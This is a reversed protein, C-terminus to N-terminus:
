VGLFKKLAEIVIPYAQTAGFTVGGEIVKVSLAGLWKKINEGFAKQVGNKSDQKVANQLSSIEQEDINLENLQKALAKFDGQNIKINFNVNYGSAFNEVTGYIHNNIIQSSGNLPIKQLESDNKVDEPYKEQLDLVISLLRNRVNDIIRVVSGKPILKWAALCGYDEYVKYKKLLMNLYGIQDGNYNFQFDSTHGELLDELTGIGATWKHENVLFLRDEESFILIPIRANSIGAGFAGTLDGYIDGYAKRYDPLNDSNKYGSIELEAWNKLDNNKLRSGLIKAKMLITTLRINGNVIDKEIENLLM